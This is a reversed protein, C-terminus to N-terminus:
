VRRQGKKEIDVSNGVNKANFFNTKMVNNWFSNFKNKKISSYEVTKKIVSNQCVKLNLDEVSTLSKIQRPEYLAKEEL